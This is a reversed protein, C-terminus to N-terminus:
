VYDNTVILFQFKKSPTLLARCLNKSFLFNHLYQSSRIINRELLLSQILHTYELLFVNKFSKFDMIEMFVYMPVNNM